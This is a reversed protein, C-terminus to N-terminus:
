RYFTRWVVTLMVLVSVAALSIAPLTHPLIGHILLLVAAVCLALGLLSFLTLFKVREFAKERTVPQGSSGRAVWFVCAALVLAGPVWSWDLLHPVTESASQAPRAGLGIALFQSLIFQLRLRFSNNRGSWGGARHGGTRELFWWGVVWERAGCM